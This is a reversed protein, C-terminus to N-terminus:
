GVRVVERRDSHIHTWKCTDCLATKDERVVWGRRTALTRAVTPLANNPPLYTANCNDCVIVVQIM